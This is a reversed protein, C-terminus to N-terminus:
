PSNKLNFRQWKLVSFLMCISYFQGCGLWEYWLTKGLGLNAIDCCYEENGWSIDAIYAFINSGKTFFTGFVETKPRKKGNKAM